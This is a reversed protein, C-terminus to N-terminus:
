KKIKNKKANKSTKKLNKVKFILFVIIVLLVLVVIAILMLPYDLNPNKVYLAVLKSNTKNEFFVKINGLYKKARIDSFDYIGSLNTKEWPELDTFPLRIKKVINGQDTITVESYVKKLPQNWLNEVEVYFENAEDEIFKYSYDTINVFLAGIRFFNKIVIEEGYDLRMVVDYQGQVFDETHLTDTVSYKETSELVKHDLLKEHMLKQKQYIKIEPQFFISETGLNHVELDFSVNEGESADRVIFSVEAYKGPYPVIVYIPAQIAALGGIGRGEDFDYATERAGILIRHKGPKEIKEPLRVIVDFEASGKFSTRSVSVYEALDGKVYIENEKDNDSSFVKFTFVKELYPSFYIEHKAPSIGIYSANVLPVLILVILFCLLRKEM